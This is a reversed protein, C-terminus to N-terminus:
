STPEVGFFDASELFATQVQERLWPYKVYVGRAADPGDPIPHGDDTLEHFGITCASMLELMKEDWAAASQADKNDKQDRARDALAFQAARTQPSYRGSITVSAGTAAGDIPDYIPVDITDKPKRSSLDFKTKKM